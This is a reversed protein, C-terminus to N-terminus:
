PRSKVQMASVTLATSAQSPLQGAVDVGIDPLRRDGGEIEGVHDGQRRHPRPRFPVLMEIRGRQKVAPGFARGREPERKMDAVDAVGEDDARGAGALRHQEREHRELEAAVLVCDCTKAKSKPPEIRAAASAMPPSQCSRPPPIVSPASVETESWGSARMWSEPSRAHAASQSAAMRARSLTAIVGSTLSCRQDASVESADAGTSSRVSVPRDTSSCDFSRL